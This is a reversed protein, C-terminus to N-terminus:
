GLQKLVSEEEGHHIADAKAFLLAHDSEEPTVRQLNGFHLTFHEDVGVVIPRGVWRKPASYHQKMFVEVGRDSLPVRPTASWRLNVWFLNGAAEYTGCGKMAARFEDSNYPAQALRFNGLKLKKSSINKTKKPHETKIKPFLIKM